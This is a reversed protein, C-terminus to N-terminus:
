VQFKVLADDATQTMALNAYYIVSDAKYTSKNSVHNHARALVGYVLKKWKNVDGGYLYGYGFCNRFGNGVERM